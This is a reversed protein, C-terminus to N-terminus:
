TRLSNTSQKWITREYLAGQEKSYSSPPEGGKRWSLHPPIKEPYAGESDKLLEMQLIHSSDKETMKHSPNDNTTSIKEFLLSLAEEGKRPL